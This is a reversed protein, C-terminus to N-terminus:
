RRAYSNYREAYRIHKALEGDVVSGNKVCSNFVKYKGIFFNGAQFSSAGQPIQPM